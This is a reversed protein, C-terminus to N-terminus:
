GCRPHHLGNTRGCGPAALIKGAAYRSRASWFAPRRWTRRKAAARRALGNRERLPSGPPADKREPRGDNGAIVAFRCPSGVHVLEGLEESGGAAPEAVEALHDAVEEALALKTQLEGDLDREEDLGVPGPALLAREHGAEAPWIEDRCPAARVIGGTDAFLKAADQMKMWDAEGHLARQGRIRKPEARAFAANGIVAVRLAFGGAMLVAVVGVMTAPALYSAISKGTPVQGVFAALRVTERTVAILITTVSGAAVGWGAFKISTSGAIAFLFIVGIAAATVYLLAIGVRGLTLKAAETKGFASLWQEIGTMGIVVIMMLAIPVAALAIRNATM